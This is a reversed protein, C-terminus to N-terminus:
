TKNWKMVNEKAFWMPSFNDVWAWDDEVNSWEWVQWSGEHKEYDNLQKRVQFKRGTKFHIEQNNDWSVKKWKEM